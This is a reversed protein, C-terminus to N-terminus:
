NIVLNWVNGFDDECVSLMIQLDLNEGVVLMLVQAEHIEDWPDDFALIIYSPKEQISCTM